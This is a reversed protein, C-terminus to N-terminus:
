RGQLAMLVGIVGVGVAAVCAVRVTGIRFVERITLTRDNEQENM